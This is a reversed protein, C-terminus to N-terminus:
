PAGTDTRTVLPGAPLNMDDSSDQIRKVAQQYRTDWIGMWKDNGLFAAAETLAGFLYVSPSDTLLANTATTALPDFFKWYDIEAAYTTDPVPRFQLSAALITYAIPQGSATDPYDSVLQDPPLYQLPNEPNVTLFLRRVKIFNPSISALTIFEASISFSTNATEQSQIMLDDRIRDEALRVFDAANGTVTADSSKAMWAAVATTIDSYTSLGM